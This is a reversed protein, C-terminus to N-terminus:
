SAFPEHNGLGPQELAMFWSYPIILSGQATQYYQERQDPTWGQDLRVVEKPATVKPLMPFLFRYGATFVILVALVLTILIVTIRKVLTSKQHPM